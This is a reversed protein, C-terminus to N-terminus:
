GLSQILLYQNETDNRVTALDTYNERCHRQASSWNRAETVFVFEPDQQTGRYCMFPSEFSCNFDAWKGKHLQVCLEDANKFSPQYPTSWKKYEAGSGTYNDSWKWLIKSFVGIWVESNLGSLLAIKKVQEMEEPSEITALDTYKERCYTQAENWNMSDAIYHYQRSSRKIEEKGNSEASGSYGSLCLVALFIREMINSSQPSDTAGFSVGSTTSTM